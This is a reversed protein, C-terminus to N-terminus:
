RKKVDKEFKRDGERLHKILKAKDVPKEGAGKLLENTLDIFRHENVRMRKTQPFFEKSTPDYRPGAKSHLGHELGYITNGRINRGAKIEKAVGNMKLKKFAWSLADVNTKQVDKELIDVFTKLKKQDTKTLSM